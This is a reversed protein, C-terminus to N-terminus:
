AKFFAEIAKHTMYVDTKSVVEYPAHMSIVPVGLDIVDVNKEAIFKAVTGGGGQDVKGLESTQWVVGAADLLNRVYGTFEASADNSGSKGRAGTFKTIVVGHNVFCANRRENVEPFNPDFAANVDSSLCKSNSRVVIDSVGLTDALDAIIDFYVASQMGSNGESGIEEKDALIAMTTHVPNEAAILATLSPYACVRDDHGYAGILSRDLGIDRAKYAPVACLEASMLDAETIGYKDNLLKLINLKVAEPLNKEFPRSGSLLNLQEGNIGDALSKRMQDGALHPLLDDIYFVPDSDDEGIVLEVTTGDARTVVGHLALPITTWQYKKIGGYYHTKLFGLGEAEYLPHQKLDVRPSDIHAASFYVGNELSETGLVFASLSKGRNNYYYKGGPAVKMGFTYPSFGAAELLAVGEKVCERETKGGDLFKMYDAAYDYAAAIDEESLAEYTNKSKYFLEDKLKQGATKEKNEQEAM